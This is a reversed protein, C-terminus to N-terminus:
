KLDELKEDYCKDCYKSSKNPEFKSYCERCFKSDKCDCCLKSDNDDSKVYEEGCYECSRVDGCRECVQLFGDHKRTLLVGCNSCTDNKNYIKTCRECLLNDEDKKIITDCKRCFNVHDYIDDSDYSGDGICNLCAPMEKIDVNLEDYDLLNMNNYFVRDCYECKYGILEIIESKTITGEINLIDEENFDSFSDVKFNDPNIVTITSETVVKMKYVKKM